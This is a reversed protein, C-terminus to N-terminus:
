SSLSCIKQEHQHAPCDIELMLWAIKVQELLKIPLNSAFVGPIPLFVACFNITSSLSRKVFSSSM